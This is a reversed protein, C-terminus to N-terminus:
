AVEAHRDIFVQLLEAVLANLTIDKEHAMTMLQLMLDDELEIPVDVRTDYDKGDIIAQGKALFDEDSDLDVYNVNDWAEDAEAGRSVAEDRNKTVYAPRILRFARENKYDHAQVEFVTQTVTDFIIHFGYGEDNDGNWSDLTYANHGYCKWGYGTGETIRFNTLKMWQEISIM